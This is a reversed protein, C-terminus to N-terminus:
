SVRSKAAFTNCAGPDGDQFGRTLWHAYNEAKGHTPSDEAIDRVYVFDEESRDLSDWVSGIFAGSLCDAQLEFRRQVANYGKKTRYNWSYAVDTIGSLKQVHHGYEHALTEFLFLSDLYPLLNEDLLFLITRDTACYIAQADKPFRGCRTSVGSRGVTRLRATAFPLDARAFQRKWSDNLCKLLAGLYNETGKRSTSHIPRERCTRRLMRGTKYIPNGTLAVKGTPVREIRDVTAAAPGTLFLSALVGSLVALPLTRM